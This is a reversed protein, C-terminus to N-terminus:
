TAPGGPGGPPPRLSLAANTYAGDDTVDTGFWEPPRFAAMEEDSAFEVEVLVLGALDDHFVDVEARHGDVDVDYRTKHIRRDGTHDWAAAFQDRDLPVEVETRVAGTGAKVTLTCGQPGADRVRVSVTGDIALYGQRLVAGEGPLEPVDAVLFKRERETTVTPEVTGDRPPRDDERLLEAIGGTPLEVGHDVTVDWYTAMRRAFAGPTEAYITEALRFARRRLRKQEARALKRARKVSRKGGFRGPREDMREILVALDHDDGLAEALDDLSAVLPELVSPAARQVLRVQYWLHKAAKRWEHVHEDTPEDQARRFARHGRRYTERLGTRLVAADDGVRWRDIRSGARELLEVARAVRPDGGGVAKTAGSAAEAQGARVRELEADTAQTARLDDFTALLAHSDRIPALADAADRVDRNFRDFESGLQSRVLRALARVEKCRKRADHVAREIGARDADDVDELAAIAEAIRESAVRTVEDSLARTPDFVYGM